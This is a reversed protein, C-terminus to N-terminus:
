IKPTLRAVPPVATVPKAILKVPEVALKASTVPGEKALTSGKLVQSATSVIRNFILSLIRQLWIPAPSKVTEVLGTNVAAPVLQGPHVEGDAPIM